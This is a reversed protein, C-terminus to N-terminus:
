SIIYFVPLRLRVSGGKLSPHGVMLSLSFAKLKRAGAKHARTRTRSKSKVIM